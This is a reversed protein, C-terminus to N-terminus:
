AHRCAYRDGSIARRRCPYGRCSLRGALHPVTAGCRVTRTSVRPSRWRAVGAPCAVYLVDGDARLGNRSLDAAPLPYLRGSDAETFVIANHLRSASVSRYLSQRDITVRRWDVMLFPTAVAGYLITSVVLQKFPVRLGSALHPLASAVSVVGLPWFDFLYRPGYRVGPNLPYFCFLLFGLPLVFDEPRLARKRTLAILAVPLLILIAPAVYLGLEALAMFNHFIGLKISPWDFYLHDDLRGGAHYAPMMADGTILYQYALLVGLFPAGGVAMAALRPIRRSGRLCSLASVLGLVPVPALRTLALVGLACGTLLAWLLSSRRESERAALMACVSTLAALPHSFLSGAQFLAFPSVAFLLAALWAADRGARERVLEAVGLMTLMVIAANALYRTSTLLEFGAIILPWGPPYQGFWKDQFVWIYNVGLSQGLPPAANWIRGALYTRAQFYYAYEDSSNLFSDLSWTAILVGIAVICAALVIWGRRSPGPLRAPEPLVLGAFQAAALSALITVAAYRDRDKAWFVGGWELIVIVVFLVAAFMGALLLSARYSATRTSPTLRRLAADARAILRDLAEVTKHKSGANKASRCPLVCGGADGAM